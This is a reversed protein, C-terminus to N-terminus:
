ILPMEFAQHRGVKEVVVFVSRMKSERLVRWCTPRRFDARRTLALNLGQGSEAPQVMTVISRGLGYGSEAPGKYIRVSWACEPEQGGSDEHQISAIIANM